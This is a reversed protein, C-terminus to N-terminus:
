QRQNSVANKIVSNVQALLNSISDGVQTVQSMAFQILLFRGPSASSMHSAAARVMSTVGSQLKIYKTILTHFTLSGFEGGASM